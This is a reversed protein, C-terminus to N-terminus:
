HQQALQYSPLTQCQQYQNQYLRQTQNQTASKCMRALHNQRGCNYCDLGRAGCNNVGHTKGCNRCNIPWGPKPQTQGQPGQQWSRPRSDPDRGNNSRCNENQYFNQQRYPMKNQSDHATCCQCRKNEFEWDNRAAAAAATDSPRAKAQLASLTSIQGQLAKVQVQSEEVVQRSCKLEDLVAALIPDDTKTVNYALEAKKAVNLMQELTKVDAELVRVKIHSKLGNLILYYLLEETIAPLQKTLKVMAAYYDTVTENPGQKRTHMETAARLKHFDADAFNGLFRNRLENYDHKVSEILSNWWVEAPGRM